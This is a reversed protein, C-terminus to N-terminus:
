LRGQCSVLAALAVAPAAERSGELQWLPLQAPACPALRRSAACWVRGVAWGREAAAAAAGAAAAAVGGAGDVKPKPPRGLRPPRRAQGKAGADEPLASLPDAGFSGGRRWLFWGRNPHVASAHAADSKKKNKWGVRGADARSGSRRRSRVRARTRRGAMASSRRTKAAARTSSAPARPRPPLPVRSQAPCRGSCRSGRGGCLM